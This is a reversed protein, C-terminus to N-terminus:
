TSVTGAAALEGFSHGVVTKPQVGITSLWTFVSCQYVFICIQAIRSQNIDCEAEGTELLLSLIPYGSLTDAMDAYRKLIAHFGPYAQFLHQAMGEFQYGQGPFAFVLGGSPLKSALLGDCFRDELKSILHGMDTVVCAFRFRYHERGICSTYCISRFKSEPSRRCFDIYNKVYALLAAETKASVVFLTPGSLETSAVAPTIKSPPDAELVAGAITGAFGYASSSEHPVDM